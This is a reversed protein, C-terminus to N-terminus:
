KEQNQQEIRKRNASDAPLTGTSMPARADGDGSGGVLAIMPEVHKCQTQKDKTDTHAINNHQHKCLFKFDKNSTM